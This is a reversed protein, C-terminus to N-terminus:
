PCPKYNDIKWGSDYKKATKKKTYTMGNEYGCEMKAFSAFMTPTFSVKYEIEATKAKDDQFIDVVEVFKLEGCKVVFTKSETPENGRSIILSSASDTLNVRVGCDGLEGYGPLTYKQVPTLIGRKILQENESYFSGFDNWDFGESSFQIEIKGSVVEDPLKSILDAAETKKLSSSCSAFLFMMASFYILCHKKM